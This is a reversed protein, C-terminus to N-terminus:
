IITREVMGDPVVTVQTHEANVELTAPEAKSAFRSGDRMFYLENSDGAFVYLTKDSHKFNAEFAIRGSLAKLGIDATLIPVEGHCGNQLFQLWDVAAQEKKSLSSNGSSNRDSPGSDLHSAVNLERTTEAVIQGPSIKRTGEFTVPKDPQNWDQTTIQPLPDKRETQSPPSEGMHVVLM